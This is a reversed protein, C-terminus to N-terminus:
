TSGSSYSPASSNVPRLSARVGVPDPCPSEGWGIAAWGFRRFASSWVCPERVARGRCPTGAKAPEAVDLTWRGVSLTWREVNFKSSPVQFRSGEWDTFNVCGNLNAKRSM